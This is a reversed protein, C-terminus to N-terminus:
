PTRGQDRVDDLRQEAQTVDSGESGEDGSIREKGEDGVDSAVDAVKSGADKAADGASEAADKGRGLLKDLFGM